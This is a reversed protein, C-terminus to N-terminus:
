RRQWRADGQRRRQVEARRARSQKPDAVLPSLLEIRDGAHLPSQLSAAEGYIAVSLSGNSIRGSLEPRGLASLAYSVQASRPVSLRECCVVAPRGAADTLWCVEVEILSPMRPAAASM